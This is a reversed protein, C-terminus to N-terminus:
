TDLSQGSKLISKCSDKFCLKPRGVPSSGSALEGYLLQKQPRNNDMRCVHALWHLRSRVLMVKIDETGARKLVEKNSIFHDWKIKLILRLHWQQITCLQRVEHQYLTWTESGYILLPMLCQNYVSLKTSATLDHLDFMRKRLRGFACSTAQICSVLEHLKNMSNMFLNMSCDSSVYSGLYKFEAHDGICM